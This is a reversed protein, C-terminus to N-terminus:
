MNCMNIRVSVLYTVNAHCIHFDGCNLSQITSPKGHLKNIALATVIPSYLSLAMDAM